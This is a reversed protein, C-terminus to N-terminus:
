NKAYGVIFLIVLMTWYWMIVTKDGTMMSMFGAGIAMTVVAAGYYVNM